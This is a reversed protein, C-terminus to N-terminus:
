QGVTLVLLAQRPGRRRCRAQKSRQEVLGTGYMCGQVEPAGVRGPVAFGADGCPTVDEEGELGPVVLWGGLAAVRAYWAFGNRGELWSAM